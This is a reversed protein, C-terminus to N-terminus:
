STVTQRDKQNGTQKTQGYTQEDMQGDTWRNSFKRLIPDNTKQYQVHHYSLMIDLSQIQIM